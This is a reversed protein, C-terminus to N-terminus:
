ALAHYKRVYQVHSCCIKRESSCESSMYMGQYLKLGSHVRRAGSSLIVHMYLSNSTHKFFLKCSYLIVQMFLSYSAHIFFLKCTYLIVQMYLSYNLAYAILVLIEQVSEYIILYHM